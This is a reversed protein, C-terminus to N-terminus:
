PPAAFNKGGARAVALIVQEQYSVLGIGAARRFEMGPKWLEYGTAM